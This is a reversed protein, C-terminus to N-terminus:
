MRQTPFQGVAAELEQWQSKLTLTEQEPSNTLHIQEPLVTKNHPEGPVGARAQPSSHPFTGRRASATGAERRLSPLDTAVAKFSTWDTGPGSVM